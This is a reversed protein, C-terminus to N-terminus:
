AVERGKRCTPIESPLKQWVEVGGGGGVSKSALQSIHLSDALGLVKGCVEVGLGRFLNERTSETFGPRSQDATLLLSISYQVSDNTSLLVDSDLWAPV